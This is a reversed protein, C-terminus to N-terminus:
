FNVSKWIVEPILHPAVFSTRVPNHPNCLMLGRIKVGQQEIELLAEEYKDAAAPSFQDVEDFHVFITRVRSCTLVLLRYLSASLHVESEAWFGISIGSLNTEFLPYWRRPRCDHFRVDKEFWCALVQKIQRPFYVECISTVGNCFLLKEPDVPTLANMQKTMHKSMANRLGLDRENALTFSERRSLGPLACKRLGM